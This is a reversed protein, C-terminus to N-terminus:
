YKNPPPAPYTGPPDPEGYPPAPPAPYSGPDPPADPYPPPYNGPAEPSGGLGLGSAVAGVGAILPANAAMFGSVAAGASAIAGQAMAALLGAMQGGPGGFMMGLGWTGADAACDAISGSPPPTASAPAVYAANVTIEIHCAAAVPAPRALLLTGFAVISVVAAAARPVVPLGRGSPTTATSPPVGALGAFVLAGIAVAAVIPFSASGLMPEPPLRFLVVAVVFTLVFAAVLRFGFPVGQLTASLRSRGLALVLLPAGILAALLIVVDVPGSVLGRLLALSVVTRVLTLGIWAPSGVPASPLLPLLDPDDALRPRLAMSRMLSLFAAAAVVVTWQGDLVAVAPDTPTNDVFGGRVFLNAAETWGLVLLGLLAAALVAAAVRPVSMASGLVRLRALLWSEVVRGLSPLAVALTGLMVLTGFRGFLVEPTQDRLRGPALALDLVAFVVTFAVGPARGVVGLALAVLIVALSESWLASYGLRAVAFVAGLGASAALVPWPGGPLSRLAGVEVAAAARLQDVVPRPAAHASTM